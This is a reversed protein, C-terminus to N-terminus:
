LKFHGVLKFLESALTRINSAAGSLSVVAGTNEETMRAIREIDQGIMQSAKSQEALADTIQTVSRLTEDLKEKVAQMSSGTEDVLTVGSQVQEKSTETSKLTHKTSVQIAEITAVIEATSRTTREALKRVEDAVVAFGRGAEGARAAEIAANLALLNTQDAIEKIVNVIKGIESSKDALMRVDKATSSTLETIQGMERITDQVVELGHDVTEGSALSNKRADNANGSIHTISVSMEEVAAAIASTSDSQVSASQMIKAGVSAMTDSDTALQEANDRIKAIIGYLSARMKEISALMSNEMGVRVVIANDLKGAAICTVVNAAESPEGGLEKGIQHAIIFSLTAGILSALILVAINVGYARAAVVSSAEYEERAVDIQLHVLESFKESLPEISPYLEHATYDALANADNSHLIQKLKAISADGASRLQKIEEVIGAERPVLNTKLYETWVADIRAEAKGIRELAIAYDIKGDRAQHALDVVDVSYLDAIEKIDRLPVVRDKYVDDLAGVAKSMGIHGSIFIAIMGLTTIVAILLIRHALKLQAVIKGGQKDNCIKEQM